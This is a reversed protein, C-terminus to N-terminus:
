SLQIIPLCNDSVAASPRPISRSFPRGNERDIGLGDAATESLQKGMMCSDQLMLGFKEIKKQLAAMEKMCTSCMAELAIKFAYTAASAATARLAAILRDSDIFKFSGGFFDIGSCGISLTPLKVSYLSQARVVKNRLSYNAGTAGKYGNAKIAFGGTQYSMSNDFIKSFESNLSAYAVNSSAFIAVGLLFRYIGLARIIKM